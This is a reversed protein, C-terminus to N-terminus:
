RTKSSFLDKLKKFFVQQARLVLINLLIWFTIVFFFLWSFDGKINILIIEDFPNFIYSVFIMIQILILMFYLSNHFNPMWSLRKLIWIWVGWTARTFFKMQQLKVSYREQKKNFSWAPDYHKPFYDDDINKNNILGEKERIKNIVFQDRRFGYAMNSLLVLSLGIVITSILLVFSLLIISTHLETENLKGGSTYVYGYGLMVSVIVSLIQFFIKQHHNQNQAFQTHFSNLLENKLDKKKM